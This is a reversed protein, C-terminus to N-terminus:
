AGLYEFAKDMAKHDGVLVLIDRKGLRFDAGLASFTKENRVVSIVTVGTKGRLDLEGLTKDAILSDDSVLFTEVVGAELYDYIKESLRRSSSKAGRWIGYCESRIVQVQTNIINRPLHFKELVRVFIEISTEFEEPIVEDAGLSFLEEIETAFWTRVIIFIEPNLNRAIQVARRAAAPDSIAVVLVKTREVGAERLILSSSADGFIIPEGAELARRFSEPNLELILYPIGTEKLVRVLNQGNLGFGAIIVHGALSVGSNKDVRVEKRKERRSIIQGFFRPGLEILLPTAMITLVASAVFVQFIERKLFGNERGVTALVFSFEGIQALGCGTQWAIRVPFRMARVTILVILFKVIIIGAVVALVLWRSPWIRKIELMLGILIFFLSNFVDRFPLIDSVVQHSYHSESIIIGGLFAGLALSLGLSSTLYALGLCVLLSSMLFIEKIRTRVIVSTIVPMVKRAILYVALVALISILFRSGLSILSVSELNALVPILALMPVIAMDQFILIGTSIQGSPSNLQNKDALIKLVVATSSLAM